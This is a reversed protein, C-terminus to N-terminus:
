ASGARLAATVIRACLDPFSLGKARASLPLLSRPTLGPLTNTELFVPTDECMPGGEKWPLIFDSRSYGRCGTARHALLAATEVAEVQAESLSEAPCLEVAGSESYKEDYDFFRGEHPRIEVVPLTEPVGSPDELVGCTVEVGRTFAEVLAEDPTAFVEELAARLTPEDLSDSTLVSTAVSSGGRRPKVVLGGAERGFELALRLSLPDPLSQFVQRPATRIGDAELIRLCALKDMCLASAALGSGTYPVGFVDLLGQLPGGEGAGGHLALFCADVDGLPGALQACLDASRGDVSWARGAPPLEVSLVRHGSAELAERVAAGTALSVEREGSAGGQLVALTLPSGLASASM